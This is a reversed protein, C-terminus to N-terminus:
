LVDDLFGLTQAAFPWYNLTADVSPWPTTRASTLATRGEGLEGGAAGSSTSVTCSIDPDGSHNPTELRGWFDRMMKQM